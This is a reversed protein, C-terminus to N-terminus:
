HRAPSASRPSAKVPLKLAPACTLILDKKQVSVSQITLSLRSLLPQSFRAALQNAQANVLAAPLPVRGAQAGTATFRLGTKPDPSLTGSIQVNQVHGQVRVAAHLVVANPEGLVIQVAEVGRKTLLQHVSKNSALTVNLDTESLRLIRPGPQPKTAAQNLGALRQQTQTVQRATPHLVVPPPAPAPRLLLWGAGGAAFLGLLIGLVASRKLHRKNSAATRNM